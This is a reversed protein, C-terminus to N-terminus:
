TPYNEPHLPILVPDLLRKAPEVEPSETDAGPILALECVAYVIQVVLYPLLTLLDLIIVQLLSLEVLFLNYLPIPVIHAQELPLLLGFLVSQLLQVGLPSTPHFDSALHM